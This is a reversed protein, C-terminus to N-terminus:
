AATETVLLKIKGFEVESQDAVPTPQNSDLQAGDVWTGNMSDLDEVCLAGDHYVFRAHNRSVLEDGIIFDVRNSRGVLIGTDSQSLDEERITVEINASRANVGRLTWVRPGDAAAHRIPM